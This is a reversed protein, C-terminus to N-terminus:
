SELEEIITTLDIDNDLLYEIIEDIEFNEATSSTVSLVEGPGVVTQGMATFAHLCILAVVCFGRLFLESM